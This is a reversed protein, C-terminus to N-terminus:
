PVLAVAYPRAQMSSSAASEPSRLRTDTCPESAMNAIQRQPESSWFCSHSGFIAAPSAIPQKPSVSGSKPELGDPMRVYARRSPSSQTSLPVLIHIVLPETASTATTQAWVSFLIRPNTTGVSVGPNEAGSIVRLSDSRADTVLSNTSSSTRRGADAT